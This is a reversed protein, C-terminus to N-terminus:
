KVEEKLPNLEWLEASFVAKTQAESSLSLTEFPQNPFFIETMVTEGLDFFLEISTKDLIIEFSLTKQNSFRPAISPKDSFNSSFDVKGSLSRDIFFEQKKHDYGFLLSDGVQNSLSFTYENPDLNKIDVRIRASSLDITNTSLITQEQEIKTDTIQKKKSVFPNWDIPLSSQLRFSSETKILELTRALTMASRWSHTPVKNAYQWNSMWGLFLPNGETSKWNSFTVGAYNDKGFDTWFLHEKQLDKKFKPDVTFTFGDFDGVFYQTASGGNPGGPNISVLHVWKTTDTGKVKLPFLDPCEWVGDHNGIGKGFASLFTWEKLNTSAYFQTEQGAALTMIWKKDSEMWFVKPDRFDRIGPNQIVPNNEFKTWTFGQDLSYAISQTQFLESGKQEAKADHNTYMAVIPPNELSGFGTTNLHDVVASGSFITGLDDPFLAIPHEEWRILDKSTAHGWHMPGWVSSEPHYQFYLHFQGNLFFMGNPDNMWNKQPTFHFSPRYKEEESQTNTMGKDNNKKDTSCTNFFLITILILVFVRDSKM